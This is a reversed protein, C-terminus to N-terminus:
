HNSSKVSEWLTHMSNGAGVDPQEFGGTIWPPM